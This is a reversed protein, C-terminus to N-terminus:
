QAEGKAKAIAARAFAEPGDDGVSFLVQERAREVHRLLSCLANLLEPAAAILRANAGGENGDEDVPIVDAVLHRRSASVVRYGKHNESGSLRAISDWPGPTHKSM